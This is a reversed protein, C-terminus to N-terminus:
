WLPKVIKPCYRNTFYGWNNLTKRWYNKM